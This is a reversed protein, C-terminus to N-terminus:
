FYFIQRSNVVNFGRNKMENYSSQLKQILPNTHNFHNFWIKNKEAKPLSDFLKMSEQVFPHPIESMNRGPLEGERYFTGDLILYDCQKV